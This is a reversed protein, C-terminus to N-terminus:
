ISLLVIRFCFFRNYNFFIFLDTQDFREICYDYYNGDIVWDNNNAMFESILRTKEEKSRIQWDGFFQVNDIHLLAIDYYESLAKALTSKGSGSYGTIVIKM